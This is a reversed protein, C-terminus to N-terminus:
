QLRGQGRSPLPLQGRESCYLCRSTFRYGPGVKWLRWGWPAYVGCGLVCVCVCMFSCTILCAGPYLSCVSSNTMKLGSFFFDPLILIVKSRQTLLTCTHLYMHSWHKHLCMLLHLTPATTTFWRTLLTFDHIRVIGRLRKIVNMLWPSSLLTQWVPSSTNGQCQQDAGYCADAVCKLGNSVSIIDDFSASFRLMSTHWILYIFYWCM